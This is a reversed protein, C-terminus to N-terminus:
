EFHLIDIARPALGFEGWGGRWGEGHGAAAGRQVTERRPGPRGDREMQIDHDQSRPTWIRM